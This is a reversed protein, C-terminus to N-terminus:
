KHLGADLFAVRREGYPPSLCFLTSVTLPEPSSSPPFPPCTDPRVGDPRKLQLQSVHYVSQDTRVTEFKKRQAGFGRFRRCRGRCSKSGSQSSFRLNRRATSVRQCPLRCAALNLRDGGSGSSLWKKRRRRLLRLWEHVTFALPRRLLRKKRAAANRM